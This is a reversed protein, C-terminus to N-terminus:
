FGSAEDEDDTAGVAATSISGVPVVASGGGVVASGGCDRKLLIMASLYTRGSIREGNDESRDSSGREDQARRPLALGM